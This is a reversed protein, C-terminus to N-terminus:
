TYLSHHTARGDQGRIAFLSYRPTLPSPQPNLPSPHPTLLSANKGMGWDGIL